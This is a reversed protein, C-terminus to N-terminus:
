ILCLVEVIIPLLFKQFQMGQNSQIIMGKIARSQQKVLMSVIAMIKDTKADLGVVYVLVERIHFDIILFLFVEQEDLPFTTVDTGAKQYPSTTKFEQNMM